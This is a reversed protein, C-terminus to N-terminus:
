SMCPLRCATGCLRPLRGASALVWLEGQRRRGGGPVAGRRLLGSLLHRRRGHRVCRGAVAAGIVRGVAQGARWWRLITGALQQQKTLHRRTTQSRTTQYRQLWIPDQIKGQCCSLHQQLRSAPVALHNAVVHAPTSAFSFHSDERCRKTLPRRPSCRPRRRASASRAPPRTTRRCGGCPPAAQELPPGCASSALLALAPRCGSSQLICTVDFFTSHLYSFQLMLHTRLIGSIDCEAPLQLLPQPCLAKLSTELLVRILRACCMRAGSGNRADFAAVTGDETSALFATPTAPLWALAESDAGLQWRLCEGGVVRMDAQAWPCGSHEAGVHLPCTQQVNSLTRSAKGSNAPLTACIVITV